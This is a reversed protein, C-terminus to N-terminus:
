EEDFPVDFAAEEGTVVDEPIDPLITKSFDSLFSGPLYLLSRLRNKELLVTLTAEAPKLKGFQASATEGQQIAAALQVTKCLNLGSHLSVKAGPAYKQLIPEISLATDTLDPSVVPQEINGAHFYVSGATKGIILGPTGKILPQFFDEGPFSITLKDPTEDIKAFGQLGKEMLAFVSKLITLQDDAIEVSVDSNGFVALGEQRSETCFFRMNNKTSTKIREFAPEIKQKFELIEEKSFVPSLAPDFDALSPQPLFRSFFDRLCGDEFLFFLTNAPIKDFAVSSKRAMLEDLFVAPSSQDPFEITNRAVIGEKTDLFLESRSVGLDDPNMTWFLSHKKLENINNRLAEDSIPVADEDEDGDENAGHHLRSLAKLFDFVLDDTLAKRSASLNVSYALLASPDSCASRTANRIEPRLNKKADTIWVYDGEQKFFLQFSTKGFLNTDVNSCFCDDITVSHVGDDSQMPITATFRDVAMQTLPLGALFSVPHLPHINETTKGNENERTCVSLYFPKEHLFYSEKTATLLSWMTSLIPRRNIWESEIDRVTRDIQGCSPLKMTLLLDQEPAKDANAFCPNFASAALLCASLFHIPKM